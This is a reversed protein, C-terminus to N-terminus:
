KFTSPWVLVKSLVETLSSLSWSLRRTRSLTLKEQLAPYNMVNTPGLPHSVVIKNVYYFVNSISWNKFVLESM